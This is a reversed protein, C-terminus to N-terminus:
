PGIYRLLLFGGAVAFKYHEGRIPKLGPLPALQQERDEKKQGPSYVEYPELLPDDLEPRVVGVVDTRLRVSEFMGPRITAYSRNFYIESFKNSEAMRLAEEVSADAHRTM